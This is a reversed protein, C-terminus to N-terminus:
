ADDDHMMMMMTICTSGTLFIPAAQTENFQWEWWKAKWRGIVVLVMSIAMRLRSVSWQYGSNKVNRDVLWMVMVFGIVLIM